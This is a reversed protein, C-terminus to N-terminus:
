QLAGASAPSPPSSNVSDPGVSSARTTRKGIARLGILLFMFLWTALLPYILDIWTLWLRMALIATAVLIVSFALNILVLRLNGVGRSMFVMMLYCMVSIMLLTTWWKQRTVFQNQTLSHVAYSHVVVGPKAGYPTLFCDQGSQTQCETESANEQGVLIFRDQFKAEDKAIKKEDGEKFNNWVEEWHIKEFDNSPKIYQLLRDPQQIKEGTTKVLSEAIMLSFSKSSRDTGFYLPIARVVSDSDPYSITHGQASKGLCKELYDDIRVRVIREKDLTFDYGVFVPFEPADTGCERENDRNRARDIEDCLFANLNAGQEGTESFFVDLAVGKAQACNAYGILRSIQLRGDEVSEPPKLLVIALDQQNAPKESVVRYHWDGFGNLALFNPPLGTEYVTRTNWDLVRSEAAIFFVLIYVPLFVLFPWGLNVQQRTKKRIYFLSVFVLGPIIIWLAQGPQSIFSTQLWEGSMAILLMPLFTALAKLLDRRLEEDVSPAPKKTAPEEADPLGAPGDLTTSHTETDPSEESAPKEPKQLKSDPM